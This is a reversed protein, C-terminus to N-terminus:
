TGRYITMYCIGTNSTSYYSTYRCELQYTNSVAVIRFEFSGTNWGGDTYTTQSFMSVGYAPSTVRFTYLAVDGSATDSITADFHGYADNFSGLVKRWVNDGTIRFLYRKIFHSNSYNETCPATGIDKNSMDLAQHISGGNADLTFVHTGNTHVQFDNTGNRLRTLSASNVSKMTVDCNANATVFNASVPSASTTNQTITGYADIRMREVNSNHKFILANNYHDSMVSSRVGSNDNFQLVSVYDNTATAKITFGISTNTAGTQTMQGASDIRFREAGGAAIAVNNVGVGYIGNTFSGIGGSFFIGSTTDTFLNGTAIDVNGSADIRMRETTNTMFLLAHNSLTGFQTGSSTPYIYSRITEGSSELLLSGAKSDVSAKINLTTANASMSTPTTGIGVDGSSDIRMAEALTGANSTHFQLEGSNTTSGQSSTIRSVETATSTKNWFQIMANQNGANANRNGILELIPFLDGSSSSISQTVFGSPYGNVKSTGNILVNGSSDIRMAETAGGGTRLILSGTVCDIYGNSNDHRLRMDGDTGLYINKGDLLWATGAFQTNQSSDITIATSTANDDIGTSTFGAITGTMTGGAKPLAAVGLAIDTNISNALKDATVSDDAVYLSTIANTAIERATISNEAIKVGTIANDPIYDSHITTKAM